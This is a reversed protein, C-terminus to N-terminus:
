FGSYGWNDDDEEDYDDDWVFVDKAPSTETGDPLADGGPSGTYGGPGLLLKEGLVLYACPCIYTKKM